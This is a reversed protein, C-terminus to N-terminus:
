GALTYIAKLNKITRIPMCPMTKITRDLVQSKPRNRLFWVLAWGKKDKENIEGDQLSLSEEETRM